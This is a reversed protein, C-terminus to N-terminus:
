EGPLLSATGLESIIRSDITNIESSISSQSEGNKELSGGSAHVVASFQVGGNLDEILLSVFDDVSVIKVVVLDDCVLAGLLRRKGNSTHGLNASAVHNLDSVAM